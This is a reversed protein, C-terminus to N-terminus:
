KKSGALMSTIYQKVGPMKHMKLMYPLLDKNSNLNTYFKMAAESPLSLFYTKINEMKDADMDVTLKGSTLMKDIMAIHDNLKFKGTKETGSNIIDDVTVMNEYKDAHDRLAIAAEFGVFGNALNFLTPLNRKFDGDLLKNADVTRSLREWSRRSPYVKGPEFEKKHELHAHNHRIFDIIVANVRNDQQAYTIWDEVSPEVDFVTWRDLEAPDMDNVQYNAAHTGGNVAAFLITDPHLRHGNLTRSDALQFFGQRVETTARDIEDMFLVVPENCAQKYWDPPNWSTSDGDVVPLGVLDGETMQSARREVIPLGRKNAFQYVLESKGVGHAGRIMIPFRSDAIMGVFSNFTKFDVAV